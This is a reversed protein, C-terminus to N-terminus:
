DEEPPLAIDFYENSWVIRYGHRRLFANYINTEGPSSYGGPERDDDLYHPDPASFQGLTNFKLRLVAPLGDIEKEAREFQKELVSGAYILPWSMYLYPKTGTMYHVMPFSEYCLLYDGEKVYPRLADVAGQIVAAREQTTYIGRVKANDVCVTQKYRPTPEFYTGDFLIKKAQVIGLAAIFLLAVIKMSRSSASLRFRRHQVEVICYVEEGTMRYVLGLGLGLSLWASNLGFNYIAWDSGVPLVLMMFLAVWCVMSLLKDQRCIWVAAAIPLLSLGYAIEAPHLRAALYLSVVLVGALVAAKAAKRGTRDLVAAGGLLLVGFVCSVKIVKLYAAANIKVLNVLGHSGEADSAMSRVIEIARLFNDTHGLAKMGLVFLGFTLVYAGAFVALRRGWIGVGEKYYAAHILIVLGLLPHAFNPLRTFSDFVLVAGSLAIWGYSSRELGKLLAWAALLFLLTTLMNHAFEYPANSLFAFLLIYSLCLARTDVFRRLVRYSVWAAGSLVLAGFVRLGLLGAWPFLKLFTGGAVCAFYYMFNYEVCDPHDFVNAYTTAYFGSDCVDFGQMAMLVQAAFLCILTIYFLKDNPKPLM